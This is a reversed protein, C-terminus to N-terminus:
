HLQWVRVEHEHPGLGLLGQTNELDVFATLVSYISSSLRSPVGNLQWHNEMSVLVRTLIILCITSTSLRNMLM